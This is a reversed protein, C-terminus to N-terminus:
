QAPEHCSPTLPSLGHIARARDCQPSPLGDVWAPRVARCPSPRRAYISCHVHQGIDGELAACRLEGGGLTGRMALEHARLPETLAEPPGDPNAPAAESWHFAVRFAACCAGCQQCVSSVKPAKSVGSIPRHRCKGVGRHHLPQRFGAIRARLRSRCGGSDASHRWHVSEVGVVGVMGEWGGAAQPLPRDPGPIVAVM